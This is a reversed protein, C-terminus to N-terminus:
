ATAASSGCPTIPGATPTPAWATSRSLERTNSDAPSRPRSFFAARSTPDDAHRDGIQKLAVERNLERDLAVFVTGLGGRAHERLVQHRQANCTTPDIPYGAIQSAFSGPETSDGAPRLRDLTADIDPNGLDTLTTRTSIGAPIAALSRELDGNHAEVHLAALTDLAALRATNLYGLALLHDALPRSRDETWARLAAELQGQQILGTQLALLGFLLEANATLASM